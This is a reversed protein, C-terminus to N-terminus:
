SSMLFNVLKNMALARHSIKNKEELLMEAFTTTFGEPIFVPDYGFGEQGRREKIITGNVIVEFGYEKDDLILAIFTRFRAQRNDINELELLVKEINNEAICEDGAYRASHVGPRGNLAYIELGTDDAFCDLGYKNKVYSAKIFANGELTDATEQIDEICGLEKLGKIKFDNGVIHQIEKLKNQNNTAFIIEKM